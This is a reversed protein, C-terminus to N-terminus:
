KDLIQKFEDFFNQVVERSDNQLESGESATYRTHERIFFALTLNSAAITKADESLNSM